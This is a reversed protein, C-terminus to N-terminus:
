FYRYGLIFYLIYVLIDIDESLIYFLFLFIQIRLYFIFYFYFIQIRLYFIFYLCFHRYGLIFYLIYVFIDIDQSLICFVLLIIQIKFYFVFCFCFYRIRLIFYLIFVLIDIGKSLICLFFPDSQNMHTLIYLFNLVNKNKKLLRKLHLIPLM